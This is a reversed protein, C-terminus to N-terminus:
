LKKHQARLEKIMNAKTIKTDLTIGHTAAMEALKAKTMSELEKTTPLKKKVLKNVTDEVTERIESVTDTVDEVLDTATDTASELNVKGTERYSMWGFYGILALLAAGIGLTLLDM